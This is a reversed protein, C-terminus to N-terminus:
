VVFKGFQWYSFTYGEVCANFCSCFNYDKYSFNCFLSVNFDNLAAFNFDLMDGKYLVIFPFIYMLM